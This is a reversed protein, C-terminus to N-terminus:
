CGFLVNEINSTWLGPLTSVDGHQMGSSSQLPARGPSIAFCMNFAGRNPRDGNYPERGDGRNDESEAKGDKQENSSRTDWEPNPLEKYDFM